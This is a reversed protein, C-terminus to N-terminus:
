LHYVHLLLKYIIDIILYVSLNISLDVCARVVVFTLHEQRLCTYDARCCTYLRVCTYVCLAGEKQRLRPCQAAQFRALSWLHARPVEPSSSREGSVAGAVLASCSLCPQQRYWRYIAFFCTHAPTPKCIFPHCVQRCSLSCFLRCLGAGEWLCARLGGWSAM